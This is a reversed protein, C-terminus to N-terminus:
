LVISNEQECAKTLFIQTREGSLVRVLVVLASNKM